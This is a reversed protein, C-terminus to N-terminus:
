LDQVSWLLDTLGAAMAPTRSAFRRPTQAGRRALPADLKLRLAAQARCFHYHARWGELHAILEGTLQATAWSRRSLAALAHRLTFNLREVFATNLSGSLGLAMLREALHALDGLRMLREVLRLKRRRYTKKVQGYLLDRAVQWRVQSTAPDTFWQGFHATLAYSYLNFGDSTFILFCGPALVLTLAHVVAQAMTQTRPGVQLTPILKTVPDFATWVGSTM